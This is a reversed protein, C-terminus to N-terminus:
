DDLWVNSFSDGQIDGRNEYGKVKKAAVTTSQMEVLITIPLDRNLIEQFEFALAQRKDVDPETAMDAIIADIEPNSYGTANRFAAGKIIGDTTFYETQKPIQEVPAAHNSLAIDFDYDGYIRKISTARDPVTLNVKVGIDELNQKVFQAVKGNEEFWGAAVLDITFRQGDEMPYGAADLMEGAKEPDYDYTPLDPNHFKPNVSSVFSTGVKARGFYVVDGILQRDIATMIAQRVDPEKVFERRSNFEITSAWAASVYGDTTEAFDGTAVLRDIDPAPIPNFVGLHLEGAEMAAARSAADRWYRLVLGDLYPKGEDWYNENAAYEIHSGRVWEKFKFPGTGIPTNNIPATAIEIGDYIHKPLVMYTSLMSKLFFEPMPQSFTIRVTSEDVIEVGTYNKLAPGGVIPKWYQEVSFIVDDAIFPEGDHWTVGSRITIDYSTFDDSHTVETALLPLFEAKGDMRLLPELIKTSSFLPSSGGGGPVFVAQPEFGGWTAVLVGGKKPTEQSWADTPAAAAAAVFIAAAASGGLFSRRILMSM